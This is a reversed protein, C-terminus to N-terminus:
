NPHHDAPGAGLVIGVVAGRRAADRLLVDLNM